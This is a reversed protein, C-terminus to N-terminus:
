IAAPTMNRPPVYRSDGAHGGGRFRTRVAERMRHQSRWLGIGDGLRGIATTQDVAGVGAQHALADVRQHARRDVIGVIRERQRADFALFEGGIRRPQDLLRLVTGSNPPRRATSTFAPERLM